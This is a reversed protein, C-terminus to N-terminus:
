GAAAHDPHHTIPDEQSPGPDDMLCQIPLPQSMQDIIHQIVRGANKRVKPDPESISMEAVDRAVSAVGMEEVLWLASARHEARNDGLMRSLAQIADGTRMQMLAHIANARARNAEREGTMSVLLDAHRGTDLQALAEVANARVRDDDHTLAAEIAPMARDPDASGLAKIAASVVHPDSDRSLRLIKEQLLLGQNLESVISLARTKAAPNPLCLKDHLAAHFGPDIKILARGTALRNARDMRPWSDWLKTFAIPVLRKTAIRQVRPDPSNILQALVKAIDPYGCRILHTVAIRVLEPRDDACFGAIAHHAHSQPPAQDALVLLRRLAVLRTAPDPVKSLAGLHRVRSAADMPLEGLWVPLGLTHGESGEADYATKDPVYRDVNKIRKMAVRYRKLLLLHWHRVAEPFQGTELSLGLGDLASAHLGQVGLAPLLARRVAPTDSRTLLVGMSRTWTSGLGELSALLDTVAPLPLSFMALLVDKREHQAYFKIADRIASLVFATEVPDWSSGSGGGDAATTREAMELLCHAAEDKLADPGHRLQDAVLYALRVSASRRIIHLANAPGQTKHNGMAVRLARTLEPADQLISRRIPEPLQHYQEVLAVCGRNQRRQLLMMAMPGLTAQDATPLAQAIAQDVCPDFRTQLYAYIQQLRPM